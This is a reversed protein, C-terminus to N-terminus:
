VGAVIWGAALVMAGFIAGGLMALSMPYARVARTFAVNVLTHVPATVLVAIPVASLVLTFGIHIASAWAREVVGWAAASSTLASPPILAKIRMAEPDTRNVLASVALGNGIAFLVEVAVWGLGLWLAVLPSRGVLTLAALRMGEELPGASAVVWTQARDESGSIRLVALGVPTRLILAVFWGLAGVAFLGPQPPYGMWTFALGYAVPVALVLPIALIVARRVGRM